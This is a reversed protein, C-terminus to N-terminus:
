SKTVRLAVPPTLYAPFQGREEPAVSVLVQYRGPPLASGIGGDCRNTGGIVGITESQGASLRGGYGTGAIAGSFVGVVQRTGSRVVVAQLPQGTDVDFTAPGSESIVVKGSLNAGSRVSRAKLHLALHLGNPLASPKAVTGCRPSRGPVGQYATLGVTISLDQGYRTWMRHALAEDGPALTVAVPGDTCPSLQQLQSGAIKVVADKIVQVQGATLDRSPLVLCDGLRGVSRPVPPYNSMPPASRRPITVGSSTPVKPAHGGGHHVVFGIAAVVIVIVGGAVALARTAGIRFWGTGRDDGDTAPDSRPRDSHAFPATDALEDLASRLRQEITPTV